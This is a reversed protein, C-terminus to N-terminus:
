GGPACLQGPKVQTEDRCREEECGPGGWVPLGRQLSLVVM